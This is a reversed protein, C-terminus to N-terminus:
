RGFRGWNGTLRPGQDQNPYNRSEAFSDDRSVQEADGDGMISNENPQQKRTWYQNFSEEPAPTTDKPITLDDPDDRREGKESHKKM